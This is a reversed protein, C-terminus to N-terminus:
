VVVVGVVGLTLPVITHIALLIQVCCLIAVSVRLVQLGLCVTVFSLSLPLSLSKAGDKGTVAPGGPGLYVTVPM